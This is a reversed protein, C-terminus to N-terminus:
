TGRPPATSGRIILKTRVPPFSSQDFKGNRAILSAAAVYGMEAIPQHVTTLAPWVFQAIWSDDFGAVSVDDPVKLGLETLGAMAGAASDDNAAFIATPPQDGRMLEQVATFGQNFTFGGYAEAFQTCGLEKLADAFGSRRTHAASHKDYGSVFGFQRHGLDWLHRTLERVAAADDVVISPASGYAEFPTIRVYPIALEDLVDMIRRDDSSPPTLIFGDVRLTKLIRRFRATTDDGNLALFEILLHYGNESCARYGGAQLKPLYSPMPADGHDEFLLGISFSRAGALSRAALDPVYNLQDIAVQVRARLKETVNPERNIVRSVSKMSVGAKTAVDSMTIRTV